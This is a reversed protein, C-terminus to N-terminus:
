RVKNTAYIFNLTTNDTTDYDNNNSQAHGLDQNTSRQAKEICQAIFFRVTYATVRNIDSLEHLM